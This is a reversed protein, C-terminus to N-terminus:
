FDLSNRIGDNYYFAQGTVDGGPYNFDGINWDDVTYQKSTKSYVSTVFVEDYYTEGGFDLYNFGVDYDRESKNKIYFIFKNKEYSIRFLAINDDEVLLTKKISKPKTNSDPLSTKINKNFNMATTGIDDNYYFFRGRLAGGSFCYKGVNSDDIEISRSKGAYITNVFIDDYLYNGNFSIYSCGFNYDSSSNNDVRLVIYGNKIGTMTVTVNDDSCLVVNVDTTKLPAKKTTASVVKSYKGYKYKTKGKSKYTRFARVRYQYKTNAKLSKSIYTKKSGNKLTTIKKWKTNSTKRFIQYGNANPTKNWTLKISSSSQTKCKLNGVKSPANPSAADVPIVSTVLLLISCICVLVFHARKIFTRSYMGHGKGTQFGSKVLIAYCGTRILAMGM